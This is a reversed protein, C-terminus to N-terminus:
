VGAAAFLESISLAPVGLEPAALEGDPGLVEVSGYGDPGPSSHVIVRRNDLDIVWYVPIGARAYVIPKTRLDRRLSSVSVEIVLAATGPHYPHSADREVIALDPEPESTGLTLAMQVRVRLREGDVARQIARDLWELAYEHAPSKPSMDLLWGDILEIRTDEDFGGSEILQHYEDLSWRHLEPTEIEAVVSPHYTRRPV